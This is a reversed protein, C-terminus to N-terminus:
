HYPRAHGGCSDLVTGGIDGGCKYEVQAEATMTDVGGSIKDDGLCEWQQSTLGAEMPGYVNTADQGNATPRIALGVADICAVNGLLPAASPGNGIYTSDGTSRSLFHHTNSRTPM